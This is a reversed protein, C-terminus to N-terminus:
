GSGALLAISDGNRSGFSFCLFRSLVMFFVIERVASRRWRPVPDYRELTTHLQSSFVAAHRIWFYIECVFTIRRPNFRKGCTISFALNLRRDCDVGFHQLEVEAESPINDNHPFVLWPTTPEQFSDTDIELCSAPHPNNKGSWDQIYAYIKQIIHVHLKGGVQPHFHFDHSKLDPSALKDGLQPRILCELIELEM